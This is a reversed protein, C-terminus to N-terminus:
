RRTSSLSFTFPFFNKLNKIFALCNGDLSYSSSSKMEVLNSFVFSKTFLAKMETKRRNKLFLLFFTQFDKNKDRIEFIFQFFSKASKHEDLLTADSLTFIISSDLFFFFLEVRLHIRANNIRSTDRKKKAVEM